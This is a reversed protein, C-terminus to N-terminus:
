YVLSLDHLPLKRFAICNPSDLVPEAKGYSIGLTFCFPQARISARALNRIKAVGM